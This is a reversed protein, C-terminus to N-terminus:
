ESKTLIAKIANTTETIKDVELNAVYGRLNTVLLSVDDSFEYQLIENMVDDMTHINFQQTERELLDFKKVVEDVSWDSIKVSDNKFFADSLITSVNLNMSFNSVLSGDDHKSVHALVRKDLTETLHMFLWPNSTLNVDPLLIDRLDPISVYVEEFIMQPASKGIVACM